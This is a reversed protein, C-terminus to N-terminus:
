PECFSTPHNPKSHPKQEIFFVSGLFKDMRLHKKNHFRVSANMRQYIGLLVIDFIAAKISRKANM